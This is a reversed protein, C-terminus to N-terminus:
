VINVCTWHRCFSYIGSPWDKWIASKLQAITFGDGEVISMKEMFSRNISLSTRYGSSALLVVVKFANPDQIESITSERRAHSISQVHTDATEAESPPKDAVPTTPEDRQTASSPLAYEVQPTAM